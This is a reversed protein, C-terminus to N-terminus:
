SFVHHAHLFLSTALADYTFTHLPLSLVYTDTTTISQRRTSSSLYYCFIVVNRRRGPHCGLSRRFRGGTFMVLVSVVGPEDEPSEWGRLSTRRPSPDRRRSPEPREGSRGRVCALEVHATRCPTSETHTIVSDVTDVYLVAFEAARRVKCM